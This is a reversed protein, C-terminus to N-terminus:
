YVANGDVVIESMVRGSDVFGRTMGGCGAFLDILRYRPYDTVMRDYTRNRVSENASFHM